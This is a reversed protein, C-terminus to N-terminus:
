ASIANSAHEAKSLNTPLSLVFSSGGHPRPQYQISGGLQEMV